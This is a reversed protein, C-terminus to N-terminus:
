KNKWNLFKNLFSGTKQKNTPYFTEMIKRIQQTTIGAPEYAVIPIRAQLATSVKPNPEIYGLYKFQFNLQSVENAIYNLREFLYISANKYCMNYIISFKTINYHSYMTKMLAFSDTISPPEPNIIVIIEDASANMRLTSNNIGASTDIFLFEYNPLITGIQEIFFLLQQSNLNAIEQVGSAGPIIHLHNEMGEYKHITDEIACKHLFFDLITNKPKLKILLDINALGFDADLLLIRKGAAALVLAMNTAINTKGVGGKGSTFSITRYM